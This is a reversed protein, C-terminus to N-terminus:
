VRALLNNVTSQQRGLPRVHQRMAQQLQHQRRYYRNVYYVTILVFATLAAAAAASIAVQKVNIVNDNSIGVYIITPSPVVTPTQCLNCYAPQSPSPSPSIWGSYTPSYFTSSASVSAPTSSYNPIVSPSASYSPYGTPTLTYTREPSFTSSPTASPEPSATTVNSTTNGANLMRLYFATINIPLMALLMTRM